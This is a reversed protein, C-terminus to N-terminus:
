IFCNGTERAHEQQPQSVKFAFTQSFAYLSNLFL